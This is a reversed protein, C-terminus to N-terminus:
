YTFSKEIKQWVQQHKTWINNTMGITLVYQYNKDAATINITTNGSDNTSQHTCLLDKEGSTTILWSCNGYLTSYLTPEEKKIVSVYSGQGTKLETLEQLPTMNFHQLITSYPIAGGVIALKTAGSEYQFAAKMDPNASVAVTDVSMISPYLFSISVNNQHYTKVTLKAYISHDQQLYWISFGAIGILLIAAFCICALLMRKLKTHHQVEQEDGANTSTLNTPFQAAPQAPVESQLDPTLDAKDSEESSSIQHENITTQENTLPASELNGKTTASGDDATESPDPNPPPQNQDPPM